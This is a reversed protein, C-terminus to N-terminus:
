GEGNGKRGEGRKGEIIAIWVSYLDNKNKRRLLLLYSYFRLVLLNCIFSIARVLNVYEMARSDKM